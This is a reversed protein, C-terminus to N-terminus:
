VRTKRGEERDDETRGGGGTARIRPNGTTQKGGEAKRGTAEKGSIRETEKKRDKEEWAAEMMRHTVRAGRVRDGGGTM